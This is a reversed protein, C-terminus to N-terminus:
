VFPTKRQITGERWEKKWRVFVEQGEDLESLLKTGKDFYKKADMNKAEKWHRVDEWQIEAQRVEWHLEDRLNRGMHIQAPSPRGPCRETQQWALVAKVLEDENRCRKLYKKIQKVAAEAHANGREHKASADRRSIGMSQCHDEFEKSTYASGRDSHFVRPIGNRLMYTRLAKILNKADKTKVNFFEVWGSFIDVFLVYEDKGCDFFDSAVVLGPAKPIEFSQMLERTQNDANAQCTHCTLRYSKVDKKINPWWVAEARKLSANIGVHGRHISEMFRQRANEPIVPRGRWFLIEEELFLDSKFGWYEGTDKRMEEPWGTEVARTVTQYVEDERADHKLRKRLEDSLYSYDLASVFIMHSELDTGMFKTRALEEAKEVPARSLCDAVVLDKGPMYHLEFDYRQLRGMFRQQRTSLHDLPKERLGILPKHDTFTKVRHGYTYLDLREFAWVIALLEKEIQPYKMETETLHRSAFYVPEGEQMLM